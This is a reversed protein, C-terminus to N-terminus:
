TRFRYVTYDCVLRYGIKQYIHNSTPNTLDTFLTVFSRGQDLLLQSLQAVCSSAYGRSRFQPPTYVPAISIGNPTPRTVGALSVREGDEWLYFRGQEIRIQITKRANDLTLPEIEPLAEETFEVLWQAVLDVDTATAQRLHGPSSTPHIVERLAFARERLAVESKVGTIETWISAFHTCVPEPGNVSPLVWGDDVIKHAIASFGPRCDARESFVILGHPPTMLAAAAVGNDDEAIAFYPPHQGYFEPQRLVTLAIGLMLSYRAEQALLLPEMRDLFLHANSLTHVTPPSSLNPM